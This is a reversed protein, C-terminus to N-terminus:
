QWGIVILHWLDVNRAVFKKGNIELVMPDGELYINVGQPVNGSPYFHSVVSTDLYYEFTYMEYTGDANKVLLWADVHQETGWWGSEATRATVYIELTAGSGKEDYGVELRNTEWIVEPICYIQYTFATEMGDEATYIGNVTKVGIENMSEISPADVAFSGGELEEVSGDSYVALAKLGEYTFTGGVVYEKSTSPASIEIGVVQRDWGLVRTRYIAMDLAYDKGGISAILSNGDASVTTSVTGDFVNSKSSAIYSMSTEHMEFTGDRRVLLYWGEASADVNASGGGSRNTIYLTLSGDGEFNLISNAAVDPTVYVDFSKTYEGYTVTVPKTGPESLDPAEVTYDLASLTQYSSVENDLSNLTTIKVSVSLGDVSLEDGVTYARRVNSLGLEIGDLRSVNVSYNATCGSYQVNVEKTGITDLSPELISVDDGSALKLSESGDDYHVVIGLGLTSFKEGVFFDTKANRTDLTISSVVKDSENDITNDACGVLLLACISLLVVSILAVLIKNKINTKM